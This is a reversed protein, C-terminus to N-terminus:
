DLNINSRLVERAGTYDYVSVLREFEIAQTGLLRQLKKSSTSVMDNVLINEEMLYSQLKKAFEDLNTQDINEFEEVLKAIARSISAQEDELAELMQKMLQENGEQIATELESALDLVGFIGLIGAVGKLSHVLIRADKYNGDSLRTQLKQMDESQSNAYKQLLSLYYRAMGPQVGLWATSDLGPIDALRARLNQEDEDEAM